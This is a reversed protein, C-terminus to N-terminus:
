RMSAMCTAVVTHLGPRYQRQYDNLGIFMIQQTADNYDYFGQEVGNNAAGLLPQRVPLDWGRLLRPLQPQPEDRHATTITEQSQQYVGRLQRATVPVNRCRIVRDVVRLNTVRASAPQRLLIAGADLATGVTRTSTVALPSSGSTASSGPIRPWERPRARSWWKM